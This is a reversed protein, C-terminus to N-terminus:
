PEDRSIVPVVLGSWVPMPWITLGLRVMVGAATVNGIGTRTVLVEAVVWGMVTPLMPVWGKARVRARVPFKVSM